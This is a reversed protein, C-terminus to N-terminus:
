QESQRTIYWYEYDDHVGTSKEVDSYPPENEIIKAFADEALQCHRLAAIHDYNIRRLFDEFSFDSACDALFQDVWGYRRWNWPNLTYPFRFSFSIQVDAKIEAVRPHGEKDAFPMGLYIEGFNPRAFGAAGSLAADMRIRVRPTEIVLGGERGRRVASGLPLELEFDDFRVGDSRSISVVEAGDQPTINCKAWISRDQIPTCLLALVRNKALVHPLHNRRFIAVQFPRDSRKANFGELSSSLQQLFISEIIENCLLHEPRHRPGSCLHIANKNWQERFAPNEITVANWTQVFEEMFGYSNVALPEHTKNDCFIRGDVEVVIRAASHMRALVWALTCAVAGLSLGIRIVPYPDLITYLISGLLSTATALLLAVSAIEILVSRSRLFQELASPRQKTM